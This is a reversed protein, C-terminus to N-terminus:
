WIEAGVLTLGINIRIKEKLLYSQSCLYKKLYSKIKEETVVFAKSSQLLTGFNIFYTCKYPQYWVRSRGKRIWQQNSTLTIFALNFIFDSEACLHQANCRAWLIFGRLFIFYFIFKPALWSYFFTSDHIWGSQKFPDVWCCATHLHNVSNMLPGVSRVCTGVLEGMKKWIM